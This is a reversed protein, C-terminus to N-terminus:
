GGGDYEPNGYSFVSKIQNSKIQNSKKLCRKNSLNVIIYNLHHLAMAPDQVM